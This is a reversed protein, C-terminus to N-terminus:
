QTVKVLKETKVVNGSDDYLMIMYVGDALSSIDIDKAGPMNLISRGDIGNIVARVPTASEVHVMTQAPNPYIKIENKNINHISTTAGGTYVYVDSYSQCGNTDTVAVKYDGSGIAVTFSDTAGTIAVLNMYWQYTVYFSGTRFYTGDFTVLPNPLPYETVPAALTTVTCSGPITIQCSYNGPITTNYTPGTAGPILVGNLYWQYLVTGTAGSVSTSLLASGGWCFSAPTIPIIVPTGVVTVMTDALTIATCGTTPDTVQVQYGGSVTVLYSTNTAGAIASGGVYWQYTDGAVITASLTVSGGACFLTPGSATITVDPLANVVTTSIASKATCGYSNTIIVYYAGAVTATYSQGTAGAIAGAANYWQYTYDPAFDTTMVVSDNQCFTLPGSLLINAIPSPNISITIVNSTASCGTANTVIASYDGATSTTYSSGVAGTIPVGGLLWQYSFGAGINASLTVSTDSCITTVPSTISAVPTDIIVSMPISFASCGLSNTVEVQYSGAISAIYSSSLAGPIAVGGIFWQYTLGAGTNATLAVFGGPCFITDGVPTIIAPQADVTVAYTVYCGTGLTYSITVVGGAIGSVVGTGIGVTALGTNSSSWTGGGTADSLTITSGVCVLTPGTIGVPLPNVTIVTTIICGTPLTYTITSTGVNSGTVVGTNLGITANGNSSTWTGGGADSLTITSGLCVANAGLIATPLPNVTVVTTMICGTGITYTITVTTAVAVSQGTVVGTTSGVTAVATNSSTWTGGGTGDFLNTTLGSCVTKTGTIAVPLPNVTVIATAACNALTYSITATGVANGTVVGGGTISATTVPISSWIGGGTADALTTTLGQCVSLTGSIPLPQTNVTVITTAACSGISYSIVTTGVGIGTVVGVTSITGITPTVSSWTGGSTGDSLLLTFTQCVPATNGTIAVPQTNVTVIASVACLGITYSVTATGVANGTVIGGATISAIAIPASTWVGGATADTLTTTFGKCVSLNGLIATPQTNVTVVTTVACTGITYSITSTGVNGGTVVGGSTITAVTTTVSSWTGGGTADTLNLSFTQCISTTNGSIAVPETNVTVVQTVFCTGLTYSITSTGVLFGSVTGDTGVTAITTATSSWTGGGTADTLATTSGQCVTPNGTIVAPQTNVTVTTTVYCSGIAYTITSTGVGGGTVVGTGAIVTAVGLTSSSWTGGTTADSLTTTFTQCVLTNGTIAVPQTNVTVVQTVFCTGITYSITSTGVLFGSVTGDTGVTAITTATSSWTGGGTADTLATTSGQCVSPTGTIAAPQTNVTVITTVYCSGITYTITSTGVGGGTVVGTGAVVTAVGLTSSSWTGGTTADSLNTTFTQCVSTNGTIAVPQTNVTVVQTVFCTGITYSITSTGVLLGGVIGTSGVTAITIATSSWTGGGTADTLATTSGQCVSPTGTIAAPQTNVTVITTTYCSGIAYTITATGVGVGTVVGGATVTAITIASSSWTGGPTVDSLTTTFTQCVSTVGTIGVPQTNVTVIATQICGTSLTYTITGTGVSVGTVVGTASVTATGTSSWTGGGTADTLPTTSGVCVNLTGTIAAPTPNVTVPTVTYCGTSTITYTINSTGGAVGSVVGTGSVVTAITTTGSTWTGTGTVDTLSTTLGQCVTKTGTIGAPDPNVTVISTVYCGAPMTYTIVATGAAM